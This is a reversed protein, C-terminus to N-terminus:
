QVWRVTSTLGILYGPYNIVYVASRFIAFNNTMLILEVRSARKMNHSIIKIKASGHLAIFINVEWDVDVGYIHIFMSEDISFDYFSHIAEWLHSM